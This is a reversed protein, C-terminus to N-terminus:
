GGEYKMTLGTIAAALADATDDPKPICELNLVSQVTLQIKKKDAKGTGCLKLKIQNPKPEIVPIKKMASLLMIIGRAQYVYEATTTNRGFFLREVSILDPSCLNIQEQLSEYIVLLRDTFGMDPTTTICGYNLARLESGSQVIAGYGVRALGPDIGLCIFDDPM